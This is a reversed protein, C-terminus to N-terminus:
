SVVGVMCERRFLSWAQNVTSSIVACVTDWTITTVSTPGQAAAKVQESGMVLSPKKGEVMLSFDVLDDVITSLKDASLAVSDVLECLEERLAASVAAAGEGAAAAQELSHGLAYRATENVGLIAHVPTRLEHQVRQIFHSQAVDREEARARVVSYILCAGVQELFIGHYPRPDFGDALLVVVVSAPQSDAEMIAACMLGRDQGLGLMKRLSSPADFDDGGGEGDFPGVEIYARSDRGSNRSAALYRALAPRVRDGPMSVLAQADPGHSGLVAVAGGTTPFSCVVQSSPAPVFSEFTLLDDSPSSALIDDMADDGEAAGDAEAEEDDEQMEILADTTRDLQREMAMTSLLEQSSRSRRHRPMRGDGGNQETLPSTPLSGASSSPDVVSTSATSMRSRASRTNSSTKSATGGGGGRFLRLDSVDLIVCSSSAFLECVHRAGKEFINADHSPEDLREDQIDRCLDIILRQGLQEERRQEEAEDDLFARAVLPALRQLQTSLRATQQEDVGLAVVLGDATEGHAKASANAILCASELQTVGLARRLIEAGDRADDWRSVVGRPTLSFFGVAENPLYRVAACGLTEQAYDLVEGLGSPSGEDNTNAREADHM